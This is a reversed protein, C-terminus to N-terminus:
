ENRINRPSNFWKFLNSAAPQLLGANEKCAYVSIPLFYYELNTQENKKINYCVGSVKEFGLLLGFTNVTVFNIALVGIFVCIIVVTPGVIFKLVNQLFIKM